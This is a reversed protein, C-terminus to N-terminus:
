FSREIYQTVASLLERVIPAASATSKVALAYNIKGKNAPRVLNKAYFYRLKKLNRVKQITVKQKYVPCNAPDLHINVVRFQYM